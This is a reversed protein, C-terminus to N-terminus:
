CAVRNAVDGVSRREQGTAEPQAADRLVADARKALAADLVERDDRVIAPDIVKTEPDQEAVLLNRLHDRAVDALVLLELALVQRALELDLESRLPRERLAKARAACADRGEVGGGPGAREDAVAPEGDAVRGVAADRLVGLLLLRALEATAEM